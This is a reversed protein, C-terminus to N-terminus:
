SDIQPMVDKKISLYERYFHMPSGSYAMSNEKWVFALVM